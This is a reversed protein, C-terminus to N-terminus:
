AVYVQLGWVTEVALMKILRRGRRNWTLRDLVVLNTEGRALGPVM